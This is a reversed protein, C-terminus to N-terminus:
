VLSVTWRVGAAWSHRGRLLSVALVFWCVPLEWVPEPPRVQARLSASRASWGSLSVQSLLQQEASSGSELGLVVKPLGCSWPDQARQDGEYARHM